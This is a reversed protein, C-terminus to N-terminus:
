PRPARAPAEEVLVVASREGLAYAERVTGTVRIREGRRPLPRETVVGIEGSGDDLTYWRVVLLGFVEKVEGEVTVQKDVHDRPHEVIDRIPTTYACGALLAILAAAAIWPASRPTEM